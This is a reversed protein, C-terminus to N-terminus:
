ETDYSKEKKLELIKECTDIFTKTNYKCMIYNGYQLFNKRINETTNKNLLIELEELVSDFKWDKQSGVDALFECWDIVLNGREICYDLSADLPFGLEDKMRYVGGLLFQGESTMGTIYVTKSM